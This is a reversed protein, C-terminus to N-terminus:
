PIVVTQSTTQQIGRNDTIRLTVKYTGSVYTHTVVPNTGNADYTGDTEFDWAYDTITSAVTCTSASADFTEILGNRTATFSATLGSSVTIVTNSTTSQNLDDRVTLTLLFSGPLSYTHQIINSSITTKEGDGWGFEYSVIRHNTAATASATFTAPQKALPTAPSSTVSLGTPIATGTVTVTQQTTSANGLSDTATLIVVYTGANAFSRRVLSGSATGGDGFSWTFTCTNCAVGEDLTPTAAVLADFTVVQNVEPSTPTFTFRATPAGTNAPSVTISLQRSRANDANNGVPTAIVLITNGTSGATPANVSFTAQGNADTTVEDQSISAGAPSGLGLTLTLRQGVVPRSNPDRATLTIVSQSSGDRPLTDPSAALTISLGLGSPGSLAPMEQKALSCASTLLAAVAVALWQVRVRFTTRDM